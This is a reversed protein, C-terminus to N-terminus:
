QVIKVLPSVKEYSEGGSLEVIVKVRFDDSKTPAETLNFTLTQYMILSDNAQLYDDPNQADFLLIDNITDNSSYTDNFDNLTIVTVNKLGEEKSGFEGSYICSCAYLQGNGGFSRQEELQSVYNVEYRMIFGLYENFTISQGDEMPPASNTNPILRHHVIKQIEQIDFYDGYNPPCNCEGGSKECNTLTFGIVLFLTAFFKTRNM